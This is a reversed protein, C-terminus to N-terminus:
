KASQLIVFLSGAWSWAKGHIFINREDSAKIEMRERYAPNKNIRHKKLLQLSGVVLLAFGMGSLVNVM